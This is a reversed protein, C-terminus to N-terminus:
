PFHPSGGKIRSYKFEREVLKLIKINFGLAIYVMFHGGNNVLHIIKTLLIIDSKQLCSDIHYINDYKTIGNKWM